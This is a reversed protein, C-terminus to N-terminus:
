PQARDWGEWLVGAGVFDASDVDLNGDGLQLRRCRNRLAGAVDVGDLESHEVWGDRSRALLPDAPQGGGLSLM